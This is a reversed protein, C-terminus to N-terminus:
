CVDLVKYGKEPTQSIVEPLNQIITTEIAEIIALKWHDRRYIISIERTPIPSKFSRVHAAVEDKRLSAAMLAPILTYGMGTQILRRLTDLSGSRFHINAYAAEPGMPVACFNVVQDKFCHGDQLLWMENPDLQARSIQEHKLLEHGSAFYALFHEYYLPRIKYDAGDIPTALIAADLNDNALETLITETKMEEVYLQV